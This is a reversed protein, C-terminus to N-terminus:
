QGHDRRHEPYLELVFPERRRLEDYREGHEDGDGDGEEKKLPTHGRARQRPRHDDGVDREDRGADRVGAPRQTRHRDEVHPRDDQGGDEKGCPCGVGGRRRCPKGVDDEQSKLLGAPQLRRDRQRPDIHRGVPRKGDDRQVDGREQDDRQKCAPKRGCQDAAAGSQGPRFRLGLCLEPEQLFDVLLQHRHALAAPEQQPMLIYVGEHRVRELPDAVHGPESGGEHEDVVGVRALPVLSGFLSLGVLGEDPLHLSKPITSTAASPMRFYSVTVSLRM